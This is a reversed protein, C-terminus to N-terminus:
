SFKSVVNRFGIHTGDESAILWKCELEHGTFIPGVATESVNDTFESRVGHLFGWILFIYINMGRYIHLILLFVASKRFDSLM